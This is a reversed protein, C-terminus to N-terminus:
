LNGDLSNGSLSIFVALGFNTLTSAISKTKDKYYETISTIDQLVKYYKTISKFLRNYETNSQLVRYCETVSELM